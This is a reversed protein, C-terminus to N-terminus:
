AAGRSARTQALHDFRHAAKAFAGDKVDKVCWRSCTTWSRGHICPCRSFDGRTHCVRFLPTQRSLPRFRQSPAFGANKSSDGLSKRLQEFQSGHLWAIRHNIIIESSLQPNCSYRGLLGHGLPTLTLCPQGAFFCSIVSLPNLM